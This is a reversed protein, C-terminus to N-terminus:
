LQLMVLPRLSAGQVDVCAHQEVQQAADAHQATHHWHGSWPMCFCSQLPPCVTSLEEMIPRLADYETAPRNLPGDDGRCKLAM